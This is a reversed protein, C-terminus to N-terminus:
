SMAWCSGTAPGTWGPRIHPYAVRQLVKPVLRLGEHGLFQGRKPISNVTPVTLAGGRHSIKVTVPYGM